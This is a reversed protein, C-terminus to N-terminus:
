APTYDLNVTALYNGSGGLAAVYVFTVLDLTGRDDHTDAGDRSEM